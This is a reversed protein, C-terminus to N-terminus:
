SATSTPGSRSASSRSRRVWFLPRTTRAAAGSPLRKAEPTSALFGTVVQTAPHEAFCSRIKEYSLEFDVRGAGFPRDATILARADLDEAPVGRKRLAAAMIASSLSEGVSLVKDLTRGSCERVLSIGVLTMALANFHDEIRQRLDELDKGETVGAAVTFHRAAMERSLAAFVGEGRASARATEQLEDTMGGLASVVVCIRSEGLASVVLDAARGIREADRISTGGFKM